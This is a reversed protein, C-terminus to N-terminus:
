TNSRVFSVLEFEDDGEEGERVSANAVAESEVAIAEVPESAGFREKESEAVEFGCVSRSDCVSKIVASAAV